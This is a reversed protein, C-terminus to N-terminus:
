KCSVDIDQSWVDGNKLDFAKNDAILLYGGSLMSETSIRWGDDRFGNTSLCPTEGQADFTLSFLLRYTGPTVEFTFRGEGNTKARTALYPEGSLFSRTWLEVIVSELPENTDSRFIRGEIKPPTGCASILLPLAALVILLAKPMWGKM